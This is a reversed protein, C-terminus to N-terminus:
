VKAYRTEKYAKIMEPNLHLLAEPKAAIGLSSRLVLLIHEDVSWHKMVARMEEESRGGRGMRSWDELGFTSATQNLLHVAHQQQMISEIAAKEASGLVLDILGISAHTSVVELTAPALNSLTWITCMRSGMQGQLASCGRGRLHQSARTATDRSRGIYLKDEEAQDLNEDNLKPDCTISCYLNVSIRSSSSPFPPLSLLYSNFTM